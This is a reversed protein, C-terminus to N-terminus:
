RREGRRFDIQEVRIVKVDEVDHGAGVGAATPIDGVVWVVGPNAVGPAM